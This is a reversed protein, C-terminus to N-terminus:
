SGSELRTATRDPLGLERIKAQVRSVDYEVRRLEVTGADTDLVGYAARPDRDRPQGVSGPNVILRGDITAEHQVHTHGLVIGDHADLYPRMEPFQAPRVYTGLREPDPHSHVIRYGDFETRPPLSALWSLQEDSLEARAHELGAFAMRNHAYREPTEVTRDHNGQVVVDAISRIRELCERPWPNYGVVDGACITADVDGIDDLVSELAPLNAHIDSLLGVRM